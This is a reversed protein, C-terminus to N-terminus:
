YKTVDRQDFIVFCLILVMKYCRDNKFLVKFLVLDRKASRLFCSFTIFLIKCSKKRLNKMFEPASKFM